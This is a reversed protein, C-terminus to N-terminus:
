LIHVARHDELAHVADLRLGDIHFDRLWMLANEVIFARVEDSGAQDLNVAPGWPTPYASTLYPGFETLRAGPGVHNYVVDLIVAVGLRHAADVFRKLADPGGYPEHV